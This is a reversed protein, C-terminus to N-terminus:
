LDSYQVTLFCCIYFTQIVSILINFYIHPTVLFSLFLFIIIRSCHNFNWTTGSNWFIIPVTSYVLRYLKTYRETYREEGWAPRCRREKRAVDCFFIIKRHRLFFFNHRWLFFFSFIAVDYFFFCWRSRHQMEERAVDCFFFFDSLCRREEGWSVSVRRGAHLHSTTTSSTLPASRM